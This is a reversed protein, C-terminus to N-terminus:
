ARAATICTGPTVATSTASSRARAALRDAAVAGRLRQGADLVDDRDAGALAADALRGDCDVERDREGLAAAADADDVAVDVARVHRDHEAQLRLEGGVALLDDRRLLVAQLDDRHAEQGAVIRRDDPATRHQVARQLLEEAFHAPDIEVVEDDIMGGPVPSTASLRLWVTGTAPAITTVM